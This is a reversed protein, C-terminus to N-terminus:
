RLPVRATEPLSLIVGLSVAAAAMIYYAPALDDHSREILFTTVLPTTGGILGLCLNYAILLGSCRVRAPFAEVMTVPVVGLFVGILVAFGM